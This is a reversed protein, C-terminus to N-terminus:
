VIVGSPFCDVSCERVTRTCRTLCVPRKLLAVCGAVCAWNTKPVNKCNYERWVYGPPCSAQTTIKDNIETQPEVNNKESISEEHLINGTKVDTIVSQEKENNNFKKVVDLIKNNKDFDM